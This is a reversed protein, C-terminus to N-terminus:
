IHILSLVMETFVSCLYEFAGGLVTGAIFLFSDSKKRHQYLIATFLAFGLGWVISFPGWVVSSRSMWRGITIRCFVTEVLDGILGGVMFLWFLKYFGCGEAFVRSKGKKEQLEPSLPYARLIRREVVSSIKARLGATFKAIRKNSENYREQDNAKLLVSTTGLIDLVLIALLIWMLTHMLIPVNANYFRNLVPNLWKVVIVGLVGWFLSHDLCVYGDFNFKKKSYDWWRGHYYKELFKGALLETVTAYICSGVFLFFINDKLSTLGVTLIIATIGYIMCLPGNLFGRNVVKKQKLTVLVTELVWGLFAYTFFLFLLRTMSM